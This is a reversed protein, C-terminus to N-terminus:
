GAVRHNCAHASHATGERGRKGRTETHRHRTISTAPRMRLGVFSPSWRLAPGCEAMRASSGRRQAGHSSAQAYPCRAYRILVATHQVGNCVRRVSSGCACVWSSLDLPRACIQNRGPVWGWGRAALGCSAYWMVRPRRGTPRGVRGGCWRGVRAIYEEGLM